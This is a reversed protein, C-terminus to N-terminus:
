AMPEFHTIFKKAYLVYKKDWEEKLKSDSIQLLTQQFLNLIMELDEIPPQPYEFLANIAGECDILRTIMPNTKENNDNMTSINTVKDSDMKTQQECIIENLRNKCQEVRFEWDKLTETFDSSISNKLKIMTELKVKLEELPKPTKALLHAFEMELCCLKLAVQDAPLYANTDIGALKLVDVGDDNNPKISKNSVQSLMQKLTNNWDSYMKTSIPIGDVLVKLQAIKIQAKVLDNMHLHQNIFYSLIKLHSEFDVENVQRFKKKPIDGVSEIFEIISRQLLKPKECPMQSILQEIKFKSDMLAFKLNSIYTSSQSSTNEVPKNVETPVFCNKLLHSTSLSDAISVQDFNVTGVIETFELYLEEFKQEWKQKLQLNNSPIESILAELQLLKEDLRPFNPSRHLLGFIMKYKNEIKTELQKLNDGM